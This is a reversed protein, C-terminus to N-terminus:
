VPRVFVRAFYDSFLGVRVFAFGLDLMLLPIFQVLVRTFLACCVLSHGFWGEFGWYTQAGLSRSRRVMFRADHICSARDLGRPAGRKLTKEM